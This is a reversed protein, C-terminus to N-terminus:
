LFVVDVRDGSQQLVTCDAELKTAKVLLRFTPPLDASSAVILRAGALSLDRVACPMPSKGASFITGRLFTNFRGFQPRTGSIIKM